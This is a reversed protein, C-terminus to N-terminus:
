LGGPLDMAVGQCDPLATLIHHFTDGDRAGIEGYRKVGQARLFNVFAGLEHANQSPKRGSFTTLM